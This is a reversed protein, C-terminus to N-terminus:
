GASREPVARRLPGRELVMALHAAVRRLAVKDGVWVNWGLHTTGIRLEYCHHRAEADVLAAPDARVAPAELARRWPDAAAIGPHFAGWFTCWATDFLFDGRLSCKWSFVATVRSADESVLVNGSLLDGHVLDGREPCAEILGGVRTECARYLRDLDPDAALTARWGSVERSQDDVLGDRLWQRWKLENTPPQWHRGVPMHLGEPVQYLAVLLRGLMPGAAPSEEPSVLELYRGHHRVSIAYAGGFAEGVETVEPVPLDPGAFVMAARDAEFWARSSGFRAVLERDDSRFSYAASWFGGGLPELDSVAGLREALFSQVQDQALKPAPMKANKGETASPMMPAAPESAPSSSM